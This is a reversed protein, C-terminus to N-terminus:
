CRIFGAFMIHVSFTVHSIEMCWSYFLWVSIHCMTPMYLMCSHIFSHVSLFYLRRPTLRVVIHTHRLLIDTFVFHKMCITVLHHILIIKTVIPHNSSQHYVLVNSLKPTQSSVLQVMDGVRREATFHGDDNAHFSFLGAATFHLSDFGVVVNSYLLFLASGAIVIRCHEVDWVSFDKVIM